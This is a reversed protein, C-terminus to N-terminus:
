CQREQTATAQHIRSMCYSMGSAAFNVVDQPTYRCYFRRDYWLLDFAKLTYTNRLLLICVTYGKVKVM